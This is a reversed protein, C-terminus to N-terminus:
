EKVVAVKNALLWDRALPTLLDGPQLTLTGGTGNPFLNAVVSETLVRVTKPKSVEAASRAPGVSGALNSGALNSSCAPCSSQPGSPGGGSTAAGWSSATTRGPSFKVSLAAPLDIERVIKLGAMKLQSEATQYISLLVRPTTQPLARWALGSELAAVPRGEILASLIARGEDTCGEDGSAVQVLAQLGLSTVLL